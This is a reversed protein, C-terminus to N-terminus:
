VISPWMYWDLGIWDLKNTVWIICICDICISIKLARSVFQGLASVFHCFVLHFLHSIKSTKSDISTLLSSLAPLYLTGPLLVLMVSAVNVSSRVLVANSTYNATNASRLGIFIWSSDVLPTIIVTEIDLYVRCCDSRQADADAAAHCTDACDNRRKNRLYVNTEVPTLSFGFLVCYDLVM